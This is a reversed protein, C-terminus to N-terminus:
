NESKFHYNGSGVELIANGNEERLFVVGTVKGIKKGSETISKLNKSPVFIKATTNDPITVDM